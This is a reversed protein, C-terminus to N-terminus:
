GDVPRPRALAGMVIWMAAFCMIVFVLGMVVTWYRRSDGRARNPKEDAPLRVKIRRRHRKGGHRAPGAPSANGNPNAPESPEVM